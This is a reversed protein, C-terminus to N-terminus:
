QQSRTHFTHYGWWLQVITLVWKVTRKKSSTWCRQSNLSALICGDRLSTQCSGRMRNNLAYHGKYCGHQWITAKLIYTYCVENWIDLTKKEVVTGNVTCWWTIQMSAKCIWGAYVLNTVKGVNAPTIKMNWMYIRIRLSSKVAVSNQRILTPWWKSNCM